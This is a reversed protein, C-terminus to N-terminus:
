PVTIMKLLHGILLIAVSALLFATIGGPFYRRRVAMMGIHGLGNLLMGIALALAFPIALANDTLSFFLTILCYSYVCINIGIFIPKPM